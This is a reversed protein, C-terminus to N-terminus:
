RRLWTISNLIVLYHSSTVNYAKQVYEEFIDTMFSLFLCPSQHFLVVFTIHSRQIRSHVVIFSFCISFNLYSMISIVTDINLKKSTIIPIAIILLRGLLFLTNLLSINLCGVNIKLPNWMFSIFQMGSGRRRFNLLHSKNQMEVSSSIYLVVTIIEIVM